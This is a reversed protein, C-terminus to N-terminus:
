SDRPSPSTYLLCANYAKSSIRRSNRAKVVLNEIVLPRILQPHIMKQSDSRTHHRTPYKDIAEIVFFVWGKTFHSTVENIQLREFQAKGLLLETETKGKMVKNGTVTTSLCKPPNEATFLRCGIM